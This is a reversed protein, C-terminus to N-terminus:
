RELLRKIHQSIPVEIFSSRQCEGDSGCSQNPCVVTDASISQLCYSCYYHFIVTAKRFKKNFSYVSRSCNNPPPSHLQILHLLDKLGENSVNHKTTFKKILIDCQNVTLLSGQYLKLDVRVTETEQADQTESHDTDSSIANEDLNANSTSGHDIVFYILSM